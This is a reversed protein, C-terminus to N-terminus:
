GSTTALDDPLGVVRSARLPVTATMLVHVAVVWTSASPCIHFSSAQDHGAQPPTICRGSSSQNQPSHPEDSNPRLPSLRVRVTGTVNGSAASPAFPEHVHM